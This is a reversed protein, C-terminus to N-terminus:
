LKDHKSLKINRQELQNIKANLKSIPNCKLELIRVYDVLRKKENEEAKFQLSQKQLKKYDELKGELHKIKIEFCNCDVCNNDHGIFNQERKKFECSKPRKETMLDRLNYKALPDDEM